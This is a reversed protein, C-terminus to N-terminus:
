KLIEFYGADYKKQLINFFANSMTENFTVDTEASDLHIGIPKIKINVIETIVQKIIPYKDAYINTFDLDDIKIPTVIELFTMKENKKGIYDYTTYMIKGAEDMACINKENGFEISDMIEVFKDEKLYESFYVIIKVYEEPIEIGMLYLLVM